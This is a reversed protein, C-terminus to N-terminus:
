NNRERLPLNINGYTKLEAIARCGAPSRHIFLFM